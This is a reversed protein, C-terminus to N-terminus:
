TKWFQIMSPSEQTVLSRTMRAVCIGLKRFVSVNCMRNEVEQSVDDPEYDVIRRNGQFRTHMSLKLSLSMTFEYVGDDDPTALELSKAYREWGHTAIALFSLLLVVFVRVM